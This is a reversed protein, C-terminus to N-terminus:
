GDSQLDFEYYSHYHDDQDQDSCENYLNLPESYGCGGCSLSIVMHQNEDDVTFGDGFAMTAKCEPCETKILLHLASDKRVLFPREEKTLLQENM